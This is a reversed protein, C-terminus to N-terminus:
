NLLIKNVRLTVKLLDRGGSKADMQLREVKLVQPSQRLEYLLKVLNEVSTESDIEVTFKKYFSFEKIATPKIGSIRTNSKRALAEIESLLKAMEEEQSGKSMLKPALDEFRKNVKEKIKMLRQAKTLKLRKSTIQRNIEKFNRVLPELVFTSLASVSIIVVTAIFILRERKSFKSLIM